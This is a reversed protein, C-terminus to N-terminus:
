EFYKWKDPNLIAYPETKESWDWHSVLEDIDKLKLPCVVDYSYHKDMLYHGYKDGIKYFLFWSGVSALAGILIYFVINM